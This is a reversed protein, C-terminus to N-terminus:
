RDVAQRNRLAMEDARKILAVDESERLPAMDFHLFRKDHYTWPAIASFLDLPPIEYLPANLHAHTKLTQCGERRLIIDYDGYWTFETTLPTRGKEVDSIFVLAGAPESTITLEREVCGCLGIAVVLLLITQLRRM